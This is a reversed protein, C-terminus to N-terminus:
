LFIICTAYSVEPVTILKSQDYALLVLFQFLHPVLAEGGKVM